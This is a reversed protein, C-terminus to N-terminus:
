AKRRAVYHLEPCSAGAEGEAVLAGALDRCELLQLGREDLQREQEDRSIYYHLLSFDHAEDNVIAYGEAGQEMRRLRRRNGLRTLLARPSGHAPSGVLLRLLMRARARPTRVYCRNHSSMILIGDKALLNRIEELVRRRQEDGLVDLVNFGAVVADYPGGGIAGLERLDGVTFRVKPYTRACYEIMSRSIDIGCVDNSIEGLHGTIRGAGCGLELVRGALPGRHAELLIQEVPRLSRSAYLEVAEGRAWQEANPEAVGWAGAINIPTGDSM